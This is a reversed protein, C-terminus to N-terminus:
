KYERFMSPRSKIHILYYGWNEWFGSLDSLSGPPPPSHAQKWLRVGPSRSESSSRDRGSWTQTLGINESQSGGCHTVSTRSKVLVLSVWLSKCLARQNLFVFMVITCDKHRFRQNSKHASILRRASLPRNLPAKLLINDATSAFITTYSWNM